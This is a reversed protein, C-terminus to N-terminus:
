LSGARRTQTGPLTVCFCWDRRCKPCCVKVEEERLRRIKRTPLVHETIYSCHPCTKTKGDSEANVRLVEFRAREEATLHRRVHSRELPESCKPNPCPFEILGENLRTQITRQLCSACVIEGCCPLVTFAEGADYCVICTGAATEGEDGSRAQAPRARQIIPGDLFFLDGDLDSDTSLYRRLGAPVQFDPDMREEIEGPRLNAFGLRPLWFQVPPPPPPDPIAVITLGGDGDVSESASGLGSSRRSSAQSSSVAAFNETFEEDSINFGPLDGFFFSDEEVGFSGCGSDEDRSIKRTTVAAATLLTKSPGDPPASLPVTSAALVPFVQCMSHFLSLDDERYRAAVVAGGEMEEHASHLSMVCTNRDDCSINVARLVKYGPNYRNKSM